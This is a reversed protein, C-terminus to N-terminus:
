RNSNSSFQFEVNAKSIQDFGIKWDKKTKEDRLTLREEKASELTGLLGGVKVAEGSELAVAEGRVGFRVREGVAGEFHEWLRLHRNVGPSSVEIEPEAGVGLNPGEVTFYTMLRRCLRSCDGSTPSGEAGFVFVRISKDGVRELDYLRLGEDETISSLELWLPETKSVFSM